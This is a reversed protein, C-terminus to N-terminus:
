VDFVCLRIALALSVTLPSLWCPESLAGGCGPATPDVARSEVPLATFSTAVLSSSTLWRPRVLTLAILLLLLRLPLLTVV